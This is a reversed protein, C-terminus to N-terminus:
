KWYISNKKQSQCVAPAVGTTGRTVVEDAWPIREVTLCCTFSTSGFTRGDTEDFRRQLTECIWNTTFFCFFLFFTVTRKSANLHRQEYIHRTCRVTHPHSDSTIMQQSSKSYYLRDLHSQQHRVRQPPAALCEPDRSSLSSWTTDINRLLMLMLTYAAEIILGDSPWAVICYCVWDDRFAFNDSLILTSTDQRFDTSRCLCLPNTHTALLQLSNTDAVAGCCGRTCVCKRGTAGFWVPFAPAEPWSLSTRWWVTLPSDARHAWITPNDRFHSLRCVRHRITVCFHLLCVPHRLAGQHDYPLLFVSPSPLACSVTEPEM